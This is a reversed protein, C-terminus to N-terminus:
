AHLSGHPCLPEARLRRLSIAEIKRLRHPAPTGAGAALDALAFRGGGPTGRVTTNALPKSPPTRARLLRGRRQASRPTWSPASTATGIGVRWTIASGASGGSTRQAFIPGSGGRSGAASAARRDHLRVYDLEATEGGSRARNIVLPQTAPRGAHVQPLSDAAAPPSASRSRTPPTPLQWRRTPRSGAACRRCIRIVGDRPAARFDDM